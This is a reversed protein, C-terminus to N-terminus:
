SDLEDGRNMPADSLDVGDWCPPEGYTATLRDMEPTAYPLLKFVYNLRKEPEMEALLEPLRSLEDNVIQM